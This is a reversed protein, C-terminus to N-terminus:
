VYAIWAQVLKKLAASRAEVEAGKGLVVLCRDKALWKLMGEPATITIEPIAARKKAGLHFILQVEKTSRLHVTAFFETTRFSPANWKIGEGIEKSAGLITARVAAIEARLPHELTALFAEVESASASAPKKSKM